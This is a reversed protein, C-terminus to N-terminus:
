VVEEVLGRKVHFMKQEHSTLPELLQSDTATIFLQSDLDLLRSLFKERNVRDLEAPLDDVLVAVVSEGAREVLRHLDITPLVVLHYSDAAPLVATLPLCHATLLLSAPKDSRSEGHSRNCTRRSYREGSM